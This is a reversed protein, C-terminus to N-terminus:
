SHGDVLTERAQGADEVFIDLQTHDAQWIANPAEAESRHLLDFTESYAKTGEHAMTLLSPELTRILAYVSSYSPPREGFTKAIAVAERHISAASLAPQKLALGEIAHQLQLSIRHKAKDARSKRALGALGNKRYRNVWRRATRLPIGQERALKALPMKNEFFPRILQFRTFAQHRDTESLGNWL